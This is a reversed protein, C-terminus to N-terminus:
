TRLYHDKMPDKASMTGSNAHFHALHTQINHRDLVQHLLSIIQQDNAHYQVNCAYGPPTEILFGPTKPAGPGKVVMSMKYTLNESPTYFILSAMQDREQTLAAVQTMLDDRFAILQKYTEFGIDTRAWGVQTYYFNNSGWPHTKTGKSSM